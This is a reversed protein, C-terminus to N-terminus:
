SQEPGTVPAPSPHRSARATVIGGALMAVPLAAPGLPGHSIAVVVGATAAAGVSIRDRLQPVLLGVFLAPATVELPVLEPVVPGLVIGATIAGVWGVGLIAGASLWYRRFREPNGLDTRDIVKTYTQDVIFTPALWRFWSPQDRFRPALGAGYLLMRANVLMMTGILALLGGGTTALTLWTLQASGSYLLPSSVFAIAPPVQTATLAVGVAFGLPAVAIAVPIIDTGGGLLQAPSRHTATATAASM